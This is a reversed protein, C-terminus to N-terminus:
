IPFILDTLSRAKANCQSQCKETAAGSINIKSTSKNWLYISSSNHKDYERSKMIASIRPICSGANLPLPLPITNGACNGVRTTVRFNEGINTQHTVKHKSTFEFSLDRFANDYNAVDSVTVCFKKHPSHHVNRKFPMILQPSNQPHTDQLLLLMGSIDIVVHNISIKWWSVHKMPVNFMIRSHIHM